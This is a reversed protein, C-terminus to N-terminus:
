GDIGINSVFGPLAPRAVPLGAPGPIPNNRVKQDTGVRNYFGFSKEGPVAAEVRGVERLQMAPSTGVGGELAQSVLVPLQNGKGRDAESRLQLVRGSLGLWGKLERLGPLVPDYWMYAHIKYATYGKKVCEEAHDAFVEPPGMNPYSSAYCKLKDRFGGLLKHVPQELFRGAFDWLLMDLPMDGGSLQWFQERDM